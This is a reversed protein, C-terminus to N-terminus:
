QIARLFSELWWYIDNREVHHRLRKMRNTRDEASMTVAEYIAESTGDLDYPNVIIADALETAAGTFRSLVLVGQEDNRCSVYEKAVLNMGDRLPTVLAVDAASYYAVLEEQPYSEYRYDVPICGKGGFRGNIHGVMQEVEYRMRAYQHVRVRSPASIQILTVKGVVDPHRELMSNFAKLRHVIGKTYDLRDVGLLITNAHYYSRIDQAKDIVQPNSALFSFRQYDISIPLSAVKVVRDDVDVTQKALDYRFDTLDRVSHMFHASYRPVHFGIVDSGLLGLLLEKAHPEVEFIDESPFPIHLFFAVKAEPLAERVLKPVLMLHYDNIWVLDGSRYESIIAEAFRENVRKYCLWQNEDFECLEQFYHFLPWLSKNSYGLYYDDVEERSLGLIRLDYGSGEDEGSDISLRGPVEDYTGSWGIWSGGVSVLIPELATVLGGVGKQIEVRGDKIGVRYPLRNSVVILRSPLLKAEVGKKELRLKM